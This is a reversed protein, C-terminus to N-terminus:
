KKIEDNSVEIYIHRPDSFIEYLFPLVGTFPTSLKEALSIEKYNKIVYQDNKQELAFRLPHEGEPAVAIIRTNMNLERLALWIGVIIDGSGCPVVIYDPVLEAAQIEYIIEKYANVSIPEFSNTV